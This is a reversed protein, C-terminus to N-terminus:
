LKAPALQFRGASKTENHRVFLEMSGTLDVAASRGVHGKLAISGDFVEAEQTAM